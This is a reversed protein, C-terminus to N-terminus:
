PKILQSHMKDLFTNKLLKAFIGQLYSNAWCRNKGQPSAPVEQWNNLVHLTRQRVTSTGLYKCMTAIIRADELTLKGSAAKAALSSVFPELIAIDSLGGDAVPPKAPRAAPPKNAAGPPTSGGPPKVVLKPAPWQVQSAPTHVARFLQNM